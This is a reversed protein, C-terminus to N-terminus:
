FHKSYEGVVTVKTVGGEGGWRGWYEVAEGEEVATLGQGLKVM